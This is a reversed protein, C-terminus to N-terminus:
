WGLKQLTALPAYRVSKTEPKDLKEEEVGWAFIRKVENTNYKFGL